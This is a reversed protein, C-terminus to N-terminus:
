FIPRGLLHIGLVILALTFAVGALPLGFGAPRPRRRQSAAVLHLVVVASVMSVLHDVSGAPRRGGIWMIVGLLAQLDLLGLFAALAAPAPAEYPRRRLWGVLFWLLAIVGALLVLYRLGSHAQFLM